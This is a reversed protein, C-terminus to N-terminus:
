CKIKYGSSELEATRRDDENVPGEEEKPEEEERERVEFPAYSLWHDEVVLM